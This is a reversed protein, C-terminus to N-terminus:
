KNQKTLIANAVAYNKTHSMSVAVEGIDRQRKVEELYGYLRIGPKGSKTNFIEINKWDVWKDDGFAKLVAEKTAFRAALHESSFRRSKAYNIEDDTFVRRLFGDGWKDVANKIRKVEIMDIGTGVIM